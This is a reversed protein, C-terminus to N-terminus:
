FGSAKIFVDFPPKRHGCGLVAGTKFIKFVQLGKDTFARFATRLFFNEGIFEVLGM